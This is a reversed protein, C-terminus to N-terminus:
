DLVWANLDATLNASAIVTVAFPLLTLGAPLTLELASGDELTFTAQGSASCDVLLGVGPLVPTDPALVRAGRVPQERSPIPNAASVAIAAEGPQGTAVASLPVFKAPFRIPPCPILCLLEKRTASIVM